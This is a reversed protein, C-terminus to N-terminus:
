CLSRNSCTGCGFVTVRRQQSVAACWSPACQTHQLLFAARSAVYMRIGAYGHQIQQRRTSDIGGRNAAEIVVVQAYMAAEQADIAAAVEPGGFWASAAAMVSRFRANFECHSLVAKNLSAIGDPNLPRADHPANGDLGMQAPM